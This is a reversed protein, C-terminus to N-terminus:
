PTSRTFDLRNLVSLDPRPWICFFAGRMQPSRPAFDPPAELSLWAAIHSPLAMM